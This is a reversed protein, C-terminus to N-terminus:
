SVFPSWFLMDLHPQVNNKVFEITQKSFATNHNHKPDLIFHSRVLYNEIEQKGILLVEPELGVHVVM